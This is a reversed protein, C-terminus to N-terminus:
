GNLPKQYERVATKYKDLKIAGASWIMVAEVLTAKPIANARSSESAKTVYGVVNVWAGVELLQHNINELVNQVKM